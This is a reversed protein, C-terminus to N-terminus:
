LKEVSSKRLNDIAVDKLKDSLKMATEEHKTNSGVMTMLVSLFMSISGLGADTNLAEAASSNSEAIEKVFMDRVSIALSKAQEGYALDIAQEELTDYISTM